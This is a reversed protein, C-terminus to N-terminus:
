HAVGVLLGNELAGVLVQILQNAPHKGAVRVTLFNDSLAETYSAAVSKLTIAPLTKGV